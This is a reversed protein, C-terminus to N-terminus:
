CWAHVHVGTCAGVDGALGQDGNRGERRLQMDDAGLLAGALKSDMAAVACLVHEQELHAGRILTTPANQHM